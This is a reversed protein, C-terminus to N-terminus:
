AAHASLATSPAACCGVPLPAFAQVSLLAPPTAWSQQSIAPLAEQLVRPQHNGNAFAIPLQEEAIIADAGDTSKMFQLCVTVAAAKSQSRHSTRHEWRGQM